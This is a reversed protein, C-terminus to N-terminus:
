NFEIAEKIEDFRQEKAVANLTKNSTFEAGLLMLMFGAKKYKHMINKDRQIDKVRACTGFYAGELNREILEDLLEEWLEPDIQPAEDALLFYRIGCEKYLM